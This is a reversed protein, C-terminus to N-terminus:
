RSFPVDEGRLESAADRLRDPRWWRRLSRASVAAVVVGGVVSYLCALRLWFELPESDEGPERPRGLEVWVAWPQWCLTVVGWAAAITLAAWRRGLAALLVVVPPGAFYAAALALLRVVGAFDFFIPASAVPM